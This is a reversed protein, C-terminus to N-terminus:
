FPNLKALGKKKKHKSDSESSKDVDPKPNKGNATQAAPQSGSPVDNITGPADAAKEIPAMPTNAKPGVPAIGYNPAPAPAPAPQGPNTAPAASSGGPFVTSGQAPATGPTPQVIELGVGGGTAGGTTAPAVNTNLTSAGTRAADAAPVDQFSLPAAGPAQAATAPQGQVTPGPATAGPTKPAANMAPNLANLFDDQTQKLIAPALTAKPDALPPTGITASQVVDPQHLFLLTLRDSLRYTRRSNELATSAAIQEATPTPIPRHMVALRDKADEVGRTASHELIVKDYANEAQDDYTKELRAKPAEPLKLSRVYKAEAAYADGLGILVDDMHSFLPYTDVVTQYRAITAAWNQHTGYFAAIESERTALTEQVERLRQTAQPVLTSEPFQQLMTRYGQEAHVAKDYDRDPKDMQRFYIDGVRMQAEAAEPANPFFTIFDTYEQEAQTLAATGGEKYWSDAIALKARMQYQSDPYTNLLTQLDLRSVDFRGHATADVAKDFLMKDPLKADKGELVNTKSTKKVEKKTDKSEVIKDEKIPKPKKGTPNTLPITATPQASTDGQQTAPAQAAAADPTTQAQVGLTAAMLAAVAMGSLIAARVSPFFSRNQIM